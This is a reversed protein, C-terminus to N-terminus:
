KQFHPLTPCEPANAATLGKTEDTIPQGHHTTPVHRNQSRAHFISRPTISKSYSTTLACSISIRIHCFRGGNTGSLGGRTGWFDGNTGTQDRSRGRRTSNTSVCM